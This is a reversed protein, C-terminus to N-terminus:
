SVLELEVRVLSKGYFKRYASKLELAEKKHYTLAEDHGIRNTDNDFYLRVRYAPEGPADKTFYLGNGTIDALTYGNTNYANIIARASIEEYANIGDNTIVHWGFDFVRESYFKRIGPIGKAVRQGNINM